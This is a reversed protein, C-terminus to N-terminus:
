KTFPIFRPVRKRYEMYQAGFARVLDREEYLVGIMIYITMSLTFLLHGVSMEPVAWFILLFGLMMPHRTYKYLAPKQFEIPKPKTNLLAFYSQRLGVLSFHDIMFTSLLLILWGAWFIIELLIGVWHGNLNWLVRPMPQWFAFILILCLSSTLVYISRQASSAVLSNLWDKFGKRAMISHQLGFVAILGINGILAFWSDGPPGSNISKPVILEALFGIFYLFTLLFVLYSFIGFGLIAYRKM